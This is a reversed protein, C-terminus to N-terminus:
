DLSSTSVSTSLPRRQPLQGLQPHAIQLEGGAHQGDATCDDLDMGLEVRLASPEQHLGVGLVLLVPAELEADLDGGLELIVDGFAAKAPVVQQELHRCLVPRPDQCRAEIGVGVRWQATGFRVCGPVAVPM